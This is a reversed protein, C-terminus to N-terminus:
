SAFSFPRTDTGAAVALSDLPHSGHASAAELVEQARQSQAFTDCCVYAVVGGDEVWNEYRRIDESALGRDQLVRGVPWPKTQTGFLLGSFEQGSVFVGVGPISVAGFRGIWNLVTTLEPASDLTLWGMRLAQMTQAVPHILPLLVGVKDSSFDARNLERLLAHLDVGSSYLGFAASNPKEGM